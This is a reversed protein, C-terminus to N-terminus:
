SVECSLQANMAFGVCRDETLRYTRKLVTELVGRSTMMWPLKVARRRFVEYIVAIRERNFLCSTPFCVWPVPMPLLRRLPQGQQLAGNGAQTMPHRRNGLMSPSGPRQANQHAGSAIANGRASNFTKLFSAITSPIEPFGLRRSRGTRQVQLRLAPRGSICRCQTRPGSAKPALEVGGPSGLPGGAEDRYRAITAGPSSRTTPGIAPSAYRHTGKPGSHIVERREWAGHDWGPM